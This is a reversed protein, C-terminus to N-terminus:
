DSIRRGEIQIRNPSTLNRYPSLTKSIKESLKAVKSHINQDTHKKIYEELIFVEAACDYCHDLGVVGSIAHKYLSTRAVTNFFFMREEHQKHDYMRSEAGREVVLRCETTTLPGWVPFRLDGELYNTQGPTYPLKFKLLSKKARLVRHWQKQAEMDAQVCSQMIEDDDLGRDSTRVDSIFLIPTQTYTKKLERALKDTFVDNILTISPSQEVNFPASDVLVFHNEPFMDSLIKVHIGPAAGAYV